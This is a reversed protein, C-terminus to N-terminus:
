SANEDQRSVNKMPTIAEFIRRAMTSADYGRKPPFVHGGGDGEEERSIWGVVVRNTSGNAGDDMFSVSDRSWSVVGNFCVRTRQTHM